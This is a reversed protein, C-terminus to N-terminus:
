APRLERSERRWSDVLHWSVALLLVAGGVLAQPTPTEAFVLWVWLPGLFTELLSVLGAESSPVLRAGAMFVIMAFAFSAFAALALIALDTGAVPELPSLPFCIAACILGACANITTVSLHRERRVFVILAAFMCAALFALVDGLVRGSRMSDQVIILVGVLAVCSALLTSKATREGLWVLAIAAALFPLAANVMLVDAVTTISMAVIFCIMSLATALSALLGGPGLGLVLGWVAKGRSVFLWAFLMAAGFLSRWALVTWIDLHLMRLFVGTSSWMVTGAAVLALGRRHETSVLSRVYYREISVPAFGGLWAWWAYRPEEIAQAVDM